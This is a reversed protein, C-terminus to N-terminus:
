IIRYGLGFNYYRISVPERPISTRTLQMVFKRKKGPFLTLGIRYGDDSLFNVTQFSHMFLGYSLSIAFKPFLFYKPGAQVGYIAGGKNVRGVDPFTQSKDGIFRDGHVSVLLNLKKHAFMGADVQFGIGADDLSQAKVGFNFHITSRLSIFRDSQANVISHILLAVLLILFHDLRNVCSKMTIRM